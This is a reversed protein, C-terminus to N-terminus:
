AHILLPMYLSPIDQTDHQPSFVLVTQHTMKQRVVDFSTLGFAGAHQLQMNECKNCCLM